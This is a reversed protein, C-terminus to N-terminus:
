LGGGCLAKRRWPKHVHTIRWRGIKLLRHSLLAQRRRTQRSLLFFAVLVCRLLYNARERKVWKCLKRQVSFSTERERTAAQFHAAAGGETHSASVLRGRLVSLVGPINAFAFEAIVKVTRDGCWPRSTVDRLVVHSFFICSLSNLCRVQRRGRQICLLGRVKVYTNSVQSPLCVEGVGSQVSDPLVTGVDPLPIDLRHQSTVDELTFQLPQAFGSLHLTPGGSVVEQQPSTERQQTSVSSAANYHVFSSPAQVPNSNTTSTQLTSSSTADFETSGAAKPHSASPQSMLLPAPQHLEQSTPPRQSLSVPPQPLKHSAYSSESAEIHARKTGERNTALHRHASWPVAGGVSRVADRLHSLIMSYTEPSTALQAMSEHMAAAYATGPQSPLSSSQSQTESSERSFDISQLQISLSSRKDMIEDIDRKIFTCNVPM